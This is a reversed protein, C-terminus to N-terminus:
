ETDRTEDKAPATYCGVAEKSTFPSSLLKEQQEVTMPTLDSETITDNKFFAQTVKGDGDITVAYWYDKVGAFYKKMAAQLSDPDTAEDAACGTYVGPEVTLDKEDCDSVWREAASYVSHASSELVRRRSSAVSSNVTGFLVVGFFVPILLAAGCGIRRSGSEAYEDLAKYPTEPCQDAAELAPPRILAAILIAIYFAPPFWIMAILGAAVTLLRFATLKRRAKLYNREAEQWFAVTEPEADAPLLEPANRVSKRFSSDQVTMVILLVPVALCLVLGAVACFEMGRMLNLAYVTGVACATMAAWVAVTLLKQRKWAGTQTDYATKQEATM